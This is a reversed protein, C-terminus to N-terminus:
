VAHGPSDAGSAASFWLVLYAAVGKAGDERRQVRSTAMPPIVGRMKLPSAATPARHMPANAAAHTAQAHDAADAPSAAWNFRNRASQQTRSLAKSLKKKCRLKLCGSSIGCLATSM